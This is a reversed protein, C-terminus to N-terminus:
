NHRIHRRDPLLVGFLILLQRKTEYDCIRVGARSGSGLRIKRPSLMLLLMLMLMLFFFLPPYFHEPPVQLM